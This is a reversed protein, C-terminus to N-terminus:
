YHKVSTVPNRTHSLFIENLAANCNVDDGERNLLENVKKIFKLLKIFYVAFDYQARFEVYQLFNGNKNLFNRVHNRRKTKYYILYQQFISYVLVDDAREIPFETTKPM